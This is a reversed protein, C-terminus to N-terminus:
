HLVPNVSFVTISFHNVKIVGPVIFVPSVCDGVAQHERETWAEQLLYAINCYLEKFFSDDPVL